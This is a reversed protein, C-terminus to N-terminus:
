RRERISSTGRLSITSHASVVRKDKPSRDTKMASYAVLAGNETISSDKEYGVAHEYLWGPRLNHPVDGVTLQHGELNFMGMSEKQQDSLTAELM